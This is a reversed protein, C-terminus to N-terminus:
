RLLCLVTDLAESTDPDLPPLCVEAGMGDYEGNRGMSVLRDDYTENAASTDMGFLFYPSGYQKYEKYDPNATDTINSWVLYNGQPKDIYTSAIGWVKEVLTGTFPSGTGDPSLNDGVDVYGSKRQLYPGNWGRKTDANWGNGLPDEFLMWFNAPSQCWAIQEASTAGAEPPFNASPITTCDYVGQRPFDRSGSDRRFQLLANRIEAMEFRTHDGQGQDQVGSYGVIVAGAVLALLAIVVLLELLTFGSQLKVLRNITNHFFLLCRM